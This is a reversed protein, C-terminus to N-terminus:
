PCDKGAGAAVFAVGSRMVGDVAVFSPAWAGRAVNLWEEYTATMDGSASAGTDALWQALTEPTGFAPSIPTGESTDEYM